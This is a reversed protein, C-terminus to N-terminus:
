MRWKNSKVEYNMTIISNPLFILSVTYYWLWVPDSYITQESLLVLLKNSKPALWLAINVFFMFYKFMSHPFLMIVFLKKLLMMSFIEEVVWVFRKNTYLIVTVHVWSFSLLFLLFLVERFEIWVICFNEFKCYWWGEKEWRGRKGIDWM